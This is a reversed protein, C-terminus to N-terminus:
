LSQSGHDDHWEEEKRRALVKWRPVHILFYSTRTVHTISATCHRLLNTYTHTYLVFRRTSFVNYLVINFDSTRQIRPYTPFLENWVLALWDWASQLTRVVGYRVRSLPAAPPLRWPHTRPARCRLVLSDLRSKRPTKPRAPYFNLRHGFFYQLRHLSKHLRKLPEHLVVRRLILSFPRQGWSGKRHLWTDSLLGTLNELAPSIMKNRVMSPTLYLIHNLSFAMYQYMSM